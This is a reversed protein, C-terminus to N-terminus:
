LDVKVVREVGKPTIREKAKRIRDVKVRKAM